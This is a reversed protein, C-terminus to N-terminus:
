VRIPTGDNIIGATANRVTQHLFDLRKRVSEITLEMVDRESISLIVHDAKMRIAM